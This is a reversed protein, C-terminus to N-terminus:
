ACSRVPMCTSAATGLRRLSPLMMHTRATPRAISGESGRLPETHVLSSMVSCRRAASSQLPEDRLLLRQEVVDHHADGDRALALHLAAVPAELLDEAVLRAARVADRRALDVERVLLELVRRRVVTSSSRPPVCVRSCHSRRWSPEPNQHRRDPRASCGPSGARPATHSNSSMVTARRALSSMRRASASCCSIRSLAVTPM